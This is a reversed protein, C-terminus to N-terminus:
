CRNKQSRGAPAAEIDESCHDKKAQHAQIFEGMQDITRISNLYCERQTMGWTFLGHGGLILGEAGPNDKVAKEIM